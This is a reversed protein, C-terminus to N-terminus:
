EDEGGDAGYEAEIRRLTEVARREEVDTTERHGYRVDEFLRTLDSVDERAIGAEVASDAFEGPTSSEPRDVELLRTMDRWARYVENDVDEGDGAEIREAARGAAGAVAAAEEEGDGAEVTGASDPPGTDRRSLALAGVFVALVAGVALLVSSIPSTDVTADGDGSGPDGVSENEQPLPQAPSQNGGGGLDLMSLGYILAILVLVVAVLMAIIKVAERRHNILYWALAVAVLVVALLLLYELFPPVDVASVPGETAEPVPTGSGTGEGGTGGDGGPEVPDDITAAAFAIAVVGVVAGALRVLLTRRSM